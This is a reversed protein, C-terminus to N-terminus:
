NNIEFREIEAGVSRLKEDIRDHGREIYRVDTITSEGTACLAALVMAAGARIDNSAVTAGKLPSPGIVLAQHANLIEVQAHMKELEYLYAMRGEFLREFIRSVGDAQSLLVGMPAQLDTPFGPHINTKINTANLMNGSTGDVTLSGDDNWTFKAGIRKLTDFFLLLDSETANHITLKGNTLLAALTFVGTELYDSIVTHNPPTLEKKGRVTVTHTGIGDIEVGMEVLCKQVDAVHPECAAFEIVTEAETLAAAMLMNSTATVSCEAMIVRGGKPNGQLHLTDNTSMDTVGMQEFGYTHAFVPRKGLLCGGPYDMEAVGFRALLAGLCVISGRLKSVMKHPIPKSQLNTTDITVTDNEDHKCVAGLHEFIELLIKIDRLKPVNHFVSEGSVLLSTVLLPLAANKAGGISVDGHLPNGGTIRYHINM